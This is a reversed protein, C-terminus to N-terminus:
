WSWCRSRRWCPPRGRRRGRAGSPRAARWRWRTVFFHPFRVGTGGNKVAFLPSPVGRGRRGPLLWLSGGPRSKKKRPRLVLPCRGAVLAPRFEQLLPPWPGGCFRYCLRLRHRGWTWPPRLPRVILAGGFADCSSGAVLGCVVESGHGGPGRAPQHGPARRAGASM